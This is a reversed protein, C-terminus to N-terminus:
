AVLLAATAILVPRRKIAPQTRRQPQVSASGSIRKAIANVVEAVGANGLRVGALSVAHFQRFGLPPEVKELLIPMLRGSDRGAAAEGHGCVSDISARAWLVLVVDAAKLERDIEASFREGVHLERDWWVSHGSAELGQAIRKAKAVDERSYSLFIRAM